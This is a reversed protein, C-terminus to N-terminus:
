AATRIAARAASAMEPTLDEPAIGHALQVHLAGHAMLEDVSGARFTAGCGPVVDGCHFEKM